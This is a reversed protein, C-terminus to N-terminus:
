EALLCADKREQHESMNTEPCPVVNELASPLTCMLRLIM